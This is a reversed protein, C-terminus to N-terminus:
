FTKVLYDRLLIKNEQTVPIIQGNMVLRILAKKVDVESIPKSAIEASETDQVSIGKGLSAVIEKRILIDGTSTIRKAAHEIKYKSIDAISIKPQEETIKTAPFIYEVEAFQSNRDITILEVDNAVFGSEPIPRINVSPRDTSFGISPAKSDGTPYERQSFEDNTALESDTDRESEEGLSQIVHEIQNKDSSKIASKLGFQQLVDKASLLEKFSQHAIIDLQDIQLIDTYKGFPLRLGRGMTQETLVESAMARLTVIVAINKVDWGEKLKNVSVVARVLSDPKDL